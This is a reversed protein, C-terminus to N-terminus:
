LQEGAYKVLTVYYGDEDGFQIVSHAPFEWGGELWKNIRIEFSEIYRGTVIKIKIVRGAM